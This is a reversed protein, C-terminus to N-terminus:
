LHEVHAGCTVRCADIRYELEQWVRTLAALMGAGCSWLWCFWAGGCATNFVTRNEQRYVYYHGFCTSLKNILFYVDSQQSM